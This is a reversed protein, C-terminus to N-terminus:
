QQLILRKQSVGGLVSCAVALIGFDCCDVLEKLKQSLCDSNNGLSASKM